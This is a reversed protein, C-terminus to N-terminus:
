LSSIGSSRKASRRDEASRLEGLEEGLKDLVGEIQPWDFGVQAAREQVAQSYALSPMSLAVGSLISRRAADEDAREEQKIRQWNAKVEEADTVSASGFVHPHRRLLKASITQFVDSYQFEGAEGAIECHLAVQLLLDGLEEALGSVDGADLKELAEYTEELLFPRLSDHTQERDWPCGGPARLRHM